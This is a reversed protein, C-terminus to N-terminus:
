PPRVFNPSGGQGAVSRSGRIIFDPGQNSASGLLPIYSGLKWSPLKVDLSGRQPM